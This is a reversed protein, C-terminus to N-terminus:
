DNQHKELWQLGIITKADVIQGSRVKELAEDIKVGLIRIDEKEAPLGGGESVRNASTVRAYYLFIRESTGGPSTYFTFVHQPADIKYGTEELLERKITDLPNEGDKVIGAPLELLWGSQHQRASYRFQEVLVVTKARVNHLIAAAADGRDLNLRVLEDSMGGSTLQHRLRAEKVKFFLREFVDEESVIEVRKDTM